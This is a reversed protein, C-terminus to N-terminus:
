KTECYSNTVINGKISVTLQAWASKRKKRYERWFYYNEPFLTNQSIIENESQGKINYVAEQKEMM